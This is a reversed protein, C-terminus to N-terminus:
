VVSQAVKKELAQAIKDRQDAEPCPGGNHAHTRHNENHKRLEQAATRLLPSPYKRCVADVVNEIIKDESPEPPHEEMKKLITSIIERSEKSLTRDGPVLGLMAALALPLGITGPPPGPAEAEPGAQPHEVRSSIILTGKKPDYDIRSIDWGEASIENLTKELDRAHKLPDRTMKVFPTKFKTVMM